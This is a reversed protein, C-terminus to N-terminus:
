TRTKLCINLPAVEALFFVFLDFLNQMARLEAFRVEYRGAPPNQRKAEVDLRYSGAAGAVLEPKEEGQPRLEDDFEAILKGDPRLLRAVVDIGRQEIIFAAYQGETLRIQYRHKEGGSLRREVRRGPELVAIETPDLSGTGPQAQQSPAPIALLTAILLITPCLSKSIFGTAACCTTLQRLM